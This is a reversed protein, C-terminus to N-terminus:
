RHTKVPYPCSTFMFNKLRPLMTSTQINRMPMRLILMVSQKKIMMLFVFIYTNISKGNGLSGSMAKLATGNLHLAETESFDWTLHGRAKHTPANAGERTM